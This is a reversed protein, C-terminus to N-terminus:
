AGVDLKIKRSTKEELRDLMEDVVEEYMQNAIKGYPIALNLGERGWRKVVGMDKIVSDFVLDKYDERLEELIEKGTVQKNNVLYAVVGLIEINGNEEKLVEYYDNITSSLNDVSDQETQTPIILYDSALYVNDTYESVTPITDLLIFDYQERLGDNKMMYDFLEWYVKEGDDSFGSDRWMQRLVKTFRSMQKSGLVIHLNETIPTICDEFSMNVVAEYLTNKGQRDLDYQRELKNSLNTQPDGDLVLVKYGKSALINAILQTLTTKGVGGKFMNVAIVFGKHLRMKYSTLMNKANKDFKM